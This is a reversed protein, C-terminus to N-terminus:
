ASKPGSQGPSAAPLTPEPQEPWSAPRLRVVIMMLLGLGLGLISVFQPVTIWDKIVYASDVRLYSVGFRMVSYLILLSGFAYGAKLRLRLVMLAMIGLILLDGIMEYAVAPHEPGYGWGPSHVNTYEVAWPLHSSKAFTDGTVLCAIRGVAMGFILGMGGVDLGRWPVLRRWLGYALGCGVGGIIAGWISIGGETIRFMEWPMDMSKWNEMVYLARAGIIGGAVGVVAVGYSDDELYNFRKGLSVALVVGMVIAVATILGHWTVTLGGVRFLEPDLGISITLLTLTQSV